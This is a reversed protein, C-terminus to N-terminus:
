AAFCAPAWWPRCCCMAMARICARLSFVPMLAAGARLFTRPNRRAEWRRLKTEVRIERGLQLPDGLSAAIDPESRGAAVADHFHADYDAAIEDIEEAGLGRLGDRLRAIFLARTM